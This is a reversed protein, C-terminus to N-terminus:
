VAASRSFLRMRRQKGNGEYVLVPCGLTQFTPLADAERGVSAGRPLVAVMVPLEFKLAPMLAQVAALDAHLVVCGYAQTLAEFVRMFRDPEPEGGRVTPNGAPIVQLPTDEDVRIVDAFSARGASLDAFGPVRPMGLQGSVAAAGKTLDVLVVQENRDVLSRALEIAVQPSDAKSSVGAVLVARPLGGTASALVRDLVADLSRLVPGVKGHGVKPASPIRTMEDVDSSAIRQTVYNRLDNPSLASMEVGRSSPSPERATDAEGTGGRRLRDLFGLGRRPKDSQQPAQAHDPGEAFEERLRDLLGTAPKVAPEDASPTDSEMQPEPAPPSAATDREARARRPESVRLWSPRKPAKAQWSPRAKAAAAPEREAQTEGSAAPSEMAPTPILVPLKRAKPISSARKASTTLAPESSAEPMATAPIEEPMEPEVRAPRHRAARRKHRPERMRLPTPMATGGILEKALVYALALLATAAMVLATIPGRKPFSPLVSAHARSVITAQAPAAGLDHRASADRYRALYSQLLDRNAKAERELGRLKIEADSLGASKTKAANLSARLSAERAAAVAAENELSKIVKQAEDRIQARVDALESKLQQIRPHSPMLTASLTALQRQVEVRQEILNIILQSKLVEPTADIDGKEALMQKILKARARAESEQAQALILQSNLESLQQANLTVNNSGAYLGESAKFKEVAEESSATTKRLVEIQDKLWATADKTQAIKAERQWAIYVDALKNAIQAALAPDGSTYEVAIVSSKSLQFVDLHDALANAAKEEESQPTGRGLGFQTLMRKLLTQGADKAFAANNTLDLDTVVQRILDRSTLVQVQSQVAQEDLTSRVSEYGEETTPKTFASEDNQILIRAESTYLPRMMSLGIFTIVGLGLALGFIWGKARWLARGLTALDVDDAASYSPRSKSVKPFEQVRKARM